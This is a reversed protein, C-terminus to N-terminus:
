DDAKELTEVLHSASISKGESFVIHDSLHLERLLSRIVKAAKQKDTM